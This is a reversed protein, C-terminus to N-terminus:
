LFVAIWLSADEEIRACVVHGCVCLSSRRSGARKPWEWAGNECGKQKRNVRPQRRDM